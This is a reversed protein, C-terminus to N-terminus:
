QGTSQALGERWSEYCRPHFHLLLPTGDLDAQVEFGLDTSWLMVRCLVCPSDPGFCGRVRIPKARRLAAVPIRTM